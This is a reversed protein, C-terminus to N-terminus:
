HRPERRESTGHRVVRGREDVCAMGVSGRGDVCAMGVRSCRKLWKLPTKGRPFQPLLRVAAPHPARTQLSGGPKRLRDPGASAIESPLLPSLSDVMAILGLASNRREPSGGLGLSLPSGRGGSVDDSSGNDSVTACRRLYGPHSSAVLRSPSGDLAETSTGLSTDRSPLFDANSRAGVESQTRSIRVAREAATEACAHVQEDSTSEFRQLSNALTSFGSVDADLVAGHLDEIEPNIMALALKDEHFREIVIQPLFRVLTGDESGAAAATAAAAAQKPNM